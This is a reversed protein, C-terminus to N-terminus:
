DIKEFGTYKQLVKPVLISGDDQLNNELIAILIRPIALASGNLTHPFIIEGANKYRTRTRRSQFDTCTSISSVELWDESGQAWVEIDITKASQFGLDGTCLEVSRYILGLEDCLLQIENVMEDFANRSSEPLEFRFLEVKEFQHVRKIGRTERGAAAKERRFCQSHSVFKLPLEEKIIDGFYLSNLAVESTPILWLDEEIDKYLLESFKPLNGSGVMVEEKVLFPPAIELYGNQNHKELMWAVLSRQLIAGKGKLVYWRSGALKVGQEMDLIGLKPAIDWHPITTKINKVDEKTFIVKNDTEDNGNLVEELPVNPIVLMLRNLESEIDDLKSNINNLKDSIERMKNIHELSPKEKSVGIRKNESNRFSRLQDSKQILDKRESDLQKIDDLPIVEGRSELRELINESNSILKNLDIM